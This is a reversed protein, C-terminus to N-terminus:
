PGGRPGRRARKGRVFGCPEYKEGRFRTRASRDIFREGMRLSVDAGREFQSLVHVIIRRPVKPHSSM